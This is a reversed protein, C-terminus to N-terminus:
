KEKRWFMLEEEIFSRIDIWIDPGYKIRLQILNWATVIGVGTTIGVLGGIIQEIM